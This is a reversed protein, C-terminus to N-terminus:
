ALTPNRLGQLLAVVPDPLGGGGAFGEPEDVGYSLLLLTAWKVRPPLPDPVVKIHAEIRDSCAEVLMTLYPDTLEIGRLHERAEDLTVFMTM